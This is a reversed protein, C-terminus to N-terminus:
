ALLFFLCVHNSAYRRQLGMLSIMSVGGDYCNRVTMRIFSVCTISVRTSRQPLPVRQRAKDARLWPGVRSRARSLGTNFPRARGNMQLLSRLSGPVPVYLPVITRAPLALHLFPPRSPIGQPHWRVDGAGSEYRSSTRTSNDREAGPNGIQRRGPSRDSRPEQIPMISGDNKM